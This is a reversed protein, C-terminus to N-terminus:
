KIKLEKKIKSDFLEVGINEVLKKFNLESTDVVINQVRDDLDIKVSFSMRNDIHKRSFGIYEERNLARTRRVEEDAVFTVMKIKTSREIYQDVQRLLQKILRKDSFPAEVLLVKNNEAVQKIKDFFSAYLNKRVEETYEMENDYGLEEAVVDKIVVSDEDIMKREILEKVFTTKGSAEQGRVIILKELINKSM